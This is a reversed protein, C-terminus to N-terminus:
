LSAQNVSWARLSATKAGGQTDGVSTHQRLFQKSISNGM